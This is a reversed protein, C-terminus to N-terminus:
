LMPYLKSTLSCWDWCSHVAPQIWSTGSPSRAQRRFFPCEKFSSKVALCVPSVSRSLRYLAAARSHPSSFCISRGTSSIWWIRRLTSFSMRAQKGSDSLRFSDSTIQTCKTRQSNPNYWPLMKQSCCHLSFKTVEPATEGSEVREALVHLSFAQVKAIAERWEARLGVYLCNPRKHALGAMMSSRSWHQLENSRDKIYLSYFLPSGTYVNCM